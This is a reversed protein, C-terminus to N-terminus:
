FAVQRKKQNILCNGKRYYAEAFAPRILLVANWEQLSSQYDHLEDYSRALYYRTQFDSKGKQSLELLNEAAKEFDGSKFLAICADRESEFSTGGCGSLIALLM